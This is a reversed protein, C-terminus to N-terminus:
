QWGIKMYNKACVGYSILTHWFNHFNTVGGILHLVLEKNNCCRGITVQNTLLIPMSHLTVLMLTRQWCLLAYLKNVNLWELSLSCENLRALRHFQSIRLFMKALKSLSKYQDSNKKWRATLLLIVEWYQVSKSSDNFIVASTKMPSNM